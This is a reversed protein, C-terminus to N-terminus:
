FQGNLRESMRRNWERRQLASELFQCEDPRIGWTERRNGTKEEVVEDRCLLGYAFADLGFRRFAEEIDQAVLGIHLRAGDGKKAVADKFRFMRYQVSAWADLVAGPIPQIDQKEHRDSTNIVGSAAYVDAWRAYSAGLHVDADSAPAHFKDTGSLMTRTVPVGDVWMKTERVGGTSLFEIVNESWSSGKRYKGGYGASTHGNAIYPTELWHRTPTQVDGKGTWRISNSPNLANVMESTGRATLSNTELVKATWNPNHVTGLSRMINNDDIIAITSHIYTGIFTCLSRGSLGNLHIVPRQRGAEQVCEFRGNIFTVGEVHGGEAKFMEFDGQLPAAREQFICNIFVNGYAKPTSNRYMYLCHVNGRYRCSIWTNENFAVQKAGPVPNVGLLLGKKIAYCEVMEFKNNNSEHGHTVSNYVRHGGNFRRTRIRQFDGSYVCTDLPWYWNNQEGPILIFNGGCQGLGDFVVAARNNEGVPGGNIRLGSVNQENPSYIYPDAGTGFLGSSQVAFLLPENLTVTVIRAPLYLYRNPEAEAVRKAALLGATEDGNDGVVGFWEAYVGRGDFPRVWCGLGNPDTEGAGNLYDALTAQQGDWPVTWSIVTGGDHESKPRSADFYFLGGGVEKGPHYAIVHAQRGDYEGEFGALEAVSGLAKVNRFPMGPGGMWGYVATSVSRGDAVGYAGTAAWAAGTMGVAALLKRRSIKPSPSFEKEEQPGQSAGKEEESM